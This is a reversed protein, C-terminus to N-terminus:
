AATLRDNFIRRIDERQNVTYFPNMTRGIMVPNIGYDSGLSGMIEAIIPKEPISFGSDRIAQTLCEHPDYYAKRGMFYVDDAYGDSPVYVRVTSVDYKKQLSKLNQSKKKERIESVTELGISTNELASLTFFISVEGNARRKERKPRQLVIGELKGQLVLARIREHSVYNELVRFSVYKESPNLEVM